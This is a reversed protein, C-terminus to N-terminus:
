LCHHAGAGFSLIRPSGPEAFRSVDFSDPADWRAADRNAAASCLLMLTGAAMEQDLVVPETLTRPVFGLSPEFRITENVASTLLAHDPELRALEEPHRVLAHFTCALQGRTTDHGGVLLNAVM